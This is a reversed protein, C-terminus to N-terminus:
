PKCSLAIAHLPYQRVPSHKASETKQQQKLPTIQSHGAAQLLFV